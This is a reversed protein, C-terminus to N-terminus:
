KVNIRVVDTMGMLCDWAEITASENAKLNNVTYAYAVGGFYEEGLSDHCYVVLESLDKGTNNTVTIIMDEVAVAIGDPLPNEGEGLSAKCDAKMWVEDAEVATNDVEFVMAAGNAPLEQVQFTVPTGDVRDLTITAEKLYEGSMNRIMIAAVNKGEQLGADPNLGDYQFINEIELGYNGPYAPFEIGVTQESGATDQNEEESVAASPGTPVETNSSQVAASIVLGLAAVAGIGWLVLLKREDFFRKFKSM